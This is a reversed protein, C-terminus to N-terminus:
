PLEERLNNLLAEVDLRKRGPDGGAVAAAHRVAQEMRDWDRVTAAARALEVLTGPALDKEDLRRLLAWAGSWAEEFSRRDASGAAARALLALTAVRDVPDTRMPLLRHLLPVARAFSERGVWLAAVDHLLGPLEPHGRGYARMAGRAFGEAEDHSGLELAIRFLAHLAAGRTEQLGHRRSARLAKGLLKRAADPTGRQAYLTGMEVYAHAYAEWDGSRRALGVTRRLWTEARSGKRWRLAMAGVALAARADDPSALAGAQAFSLATAGAKREEAWRGVQLCVLTVLEPSAGGPNGVLAGLTTLAVEIGPEPAVSGVLALRARAADACFLGEREGPPFSAWLTVDRLSQWLLLGLEGRVEDLIHSAELSEAPERLIAPPVCWRRGVNRRRLPTAPAPDPKVSPEM